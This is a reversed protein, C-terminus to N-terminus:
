HREDSDTLANDGKPALKVNHISKINDYADTLRANEFKEIESANTPNGTEDYKWEYKSGRFGFM